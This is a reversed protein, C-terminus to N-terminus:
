GNFTEDGEYLDDDVTPYEVTKTSQGPTSPFHRITRVPPEASTTRALETEDYYCRQRVVRVYERVDM